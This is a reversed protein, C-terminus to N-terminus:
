IHALLTFPRPICEDWAYVGRYQVKYWPYAALVLDKAIRANHLEHYVAISLQPRKESLITKSGELAEIEAGEIDMKILGVDSILGETFLSDVSYVPVIEGTSSSTATVCVSKPDINILTEGRSKGLCGHLIRVRGDRIEAEYSRELAECLLKIPEIALVNAGRALAYATFFGECAGADIVTEGPTIKIPGTEYAAPNLEPPTFVEHYLWPLDDTNYTAPWFFKLGSIELVLWQDDQSVVSLKPHTWGIFPDYTWLDKFPFHYPSKCARRLLPVRKRLSQPIAQWIRDKIKGGFNDLSKM